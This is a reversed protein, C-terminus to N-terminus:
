PVCVGLHGGGTSSNDPFGVSTCKGYSKGGVTCTGNAPFRGGASTGVTFGTPQTLWCFLWCKAGTSGGDGLTLEFCGQSEGCDNLAGCTNGPALDIAKGPAPTSCTFVDPDKTFNCYETAGCDYKFPHCVQENYTCLHYLTNQAPTNDVINLSCRGPAGTSASKCVSDDGSCCPHSCIGNTGSAGTPQCILGPACGNTDSCPDGDANPRPAVVHLSQAERQRRVRLDPEGHV